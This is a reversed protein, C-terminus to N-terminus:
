NPVENKIGGMQIVRTCIFHSMSSKNPSKRIGM